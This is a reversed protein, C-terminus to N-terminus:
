GLFPSHVKVEWGSSVVPNLHLEFLFATGSSVIQPEEYGLATLLSIMTVDHGVHVYMNVDPSKNTKKMNMM